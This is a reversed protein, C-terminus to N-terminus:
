WLREETADYSTRGDILVREVVTRPDAPHGTLILVDADRGPTLSGVRDEIGAAMAPVVTLGRVAQLRSDDFGYRVGMSAQLQLTQQPIVPADTNFGVNELGREQYGAAVGRTGEHGNRAWEIMGRVATDISRPGVLAPVGMEQALEGTLWGGITSHDLYVDLGFEGRIMTLTMLVVPYMQTHTSVQTRKALLERFIDWTLNREPEEGEGKEFAEWRRAYSLGRRFTNRTNWNEFAMGVGITWAEPNGWQALKLSGPDRVLADEYREPGTKLLIGGGGINSGSGPIYLVTTVGAALGRELRGNRPIIATRASLGPNVLYVVDNIDYTGGEHSHLDIMGPMVWRDGADLVEYDEPVALESRTGVAEIKGERVLVVARDVYQPAGLDPPCVLAKAALIALGSGGEAGATPQRPEPRAEAAGTFVFFLLGLAGLVNRPM